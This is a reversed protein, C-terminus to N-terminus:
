IEMWHNTYGLGNHRIWLSGMKSTPTQTMSELMSGDSDQPAPPHWNIFVCLPCSQIHRTATGIYVKIYRRCAGVGYILSVATATVHEILIDMLAGDGSTDISMCPLAMPRAAQWHHTLSVNLSCM